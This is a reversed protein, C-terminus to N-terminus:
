NDVGKDMDICCILSFSFFFSQLLILILYEVSFIRLDAVWFDLMAAWRMNVKHDYVFDLVEEPYRDSFFFASSLPNFFPFSHRLYLSISREETRNM